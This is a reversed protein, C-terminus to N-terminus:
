CYFMEFSLLYISRYILSTGFTKYMINQKIPHQPVQSQYGDQGCCPVLYAFMVCIHGIVWEMYISGLWVIYCVVLGKIVRDKDPLGLQAHYHIAGAQPSPM